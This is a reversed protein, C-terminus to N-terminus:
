MATTTWRPNRSHDNPLSLCSGDRHVRCRSTTKKLSGRDQSRTCHDRLRLGNAAILAEFWDPDRDDSRTSASAIQDTRQRRNRRDFDHRHAVRVPRMEFPAPLVRSRERPREGIVALQKILGLWLRDYHGHRQRRVEVDAAICQFRTAGHEAFLRHTVGDLLSLFQRSPNLFPARHKLNTQLSSGVRDIPLRRRHNLGPHKAADCRNLALPMAVIAPPSRHRHRAIMGVISFQISLQVPTQIPIGRLSQHGLQPCM